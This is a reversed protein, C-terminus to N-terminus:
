IIDNEEVIKMIDFKMRDYDFDSKLKNKIISLSLLINELIMSKKENIDVSCFKEYNSQISLIAMRYTLSIKKVENYEGHEVIERPAIIPTIGITDLKDTYLSIDIGNSIASCFRYLDDIVGYESTFYSPSNIFLNM